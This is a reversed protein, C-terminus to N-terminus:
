IKIYQGNMNKIKFKYYLPTIFIGHKQDSTFLNLQCAALKQPTKFSILNGLM